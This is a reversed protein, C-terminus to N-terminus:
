PSAGAAGGAMPTRSRTSPRTSQGNQAPAARECAGDIDWPPLPGRSSALPAWTAYRDGGLRVSVAAWQRAALEVAAAAAVAPARVPRERLLEWTAAAVRDIERSAPRFGTRAALVRHQVAMRHRHAFLDRLTAPGRNRVLADPAYRAELGRRLIEAHIWDEDCGAEDLPLREFVRRFAVLEGMKPARLCVRHHLDWFVESAFAWPGSGAPVPHGGVMGVRPDALPASLREIADPHLVNDANALVVVDTDVRALLENVAAAKGRKVPERVLEAHPVGRLADAAIADTRDTSGSSVVVIRRVAVARTRQALLARLCTAVTAEEDHAFVGVSVPLRAPPSHAPASV